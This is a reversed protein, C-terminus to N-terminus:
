YVPQARVHVLRVPPAGICRRQVIIGGICAEMDFVVMLCSGLIYKWAM